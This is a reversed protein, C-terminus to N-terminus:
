SYVPHHYVIRKLVKAPDIAEGHNLTVCFECPADLRQLRNMHYTLVVREPPTPLLHYNWAAWALRRKPLLSRDTHLVAENRQYRIAGLVDQELPSPNALLALAQDSHCALLAAEFREAQGRGQRDRWRVEVGQPFRAISEVPSQLRIRDRFPRVLPDVYRQSGGTIVRWTPRNNVSLMGHHKFFRVLYQAPFDWITAQGASWIAGAMPLLYNRIFPESYREHELYAGLSPGPGPQELLAVSERNFRLIDRVMRYFSPRLLNRRQAFLSNLTTGNYELGTRECRVSFSMDSPQHAVGLQDLLAIFNPYTWDNFVIFGTDVAYTKGECPVEVTNTHGGIYDGAEFLTLDHRGHLLHGATMGAIGSGIIAIKM